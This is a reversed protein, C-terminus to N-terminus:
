IRKARLTWNEYTGPEYRNIIWGSRISANLRKLLNFAMSYGMIGLWIFIGAIAKTRRVKNLNSFLFILLPLHFNFFGFDLYKYKEKIQERSIATRKKQKIIDKFRAKEYSAHMRPMSPDEVVKLSYGREIVDLAREWADGM